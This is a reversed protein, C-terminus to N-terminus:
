KGKGRRSQIAKPEKDEERATGWRQRKMRQPISENKGLVGQQTKYASPLKRKTQAPPIRAEWKWWNKRVRCILIYTMGQLTNHYNDVSDKSDEGRQRKSDERGDDGRQRKIDERSDVGRQRKSDERSDDGRQRKSDRKWEVVYQEGKWRKRVRHGQRESVSDTEDRQLKWM